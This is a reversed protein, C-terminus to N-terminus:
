RMPFAIDCVEDTPTAAGFDAFYVERPAGDVTRGQATIWGDVADYAALIQPYVVQAKTIRTYAEHHAPERRTPLGASGASLGIPVCVEVPGDSDENVEGHYVVFPPAAVGGHGAAVRLLRGMAAEIWEPLEGVLVHRQETLVFQEPIERVQVDFMAYGGERGSLKDRLYTMLPRQAAIREEVAAWHAAVLEAGRPGPAAITASIQALPMDLRRLLAILRAAALQDARYWRYGSDPTVHAPMLLGLREYLRLAKPSLRARRAFVGISLLAGTSGVGGDRDDGEGV